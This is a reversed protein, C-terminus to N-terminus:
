HVSSVDKNEPTMFLKYERKRRDTLGALSVLKGDVHGKNWRTFLDEVVPKGSNIVKLLSSDLFNGSGINYVFSILADIQNQNLKVRILREVTTAADRTDGELLALGVIYNIVMGERVPIGNIKTTGWGITWVGVPDKYSIPKFKELDKILQLGNQGINM